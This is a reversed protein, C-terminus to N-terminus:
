SMWKMSKIRRLTLPGIFDSLQYLVHFNFQNYLVQWRCWKKIQDLAASVAENATEISALSSNVKL